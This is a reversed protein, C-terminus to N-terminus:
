LDIGKAIARRQVAFLYKVIKNVTARTLDMFAAGVLYAISGDPMKQAVCRVVRSMTSLTGLESVGYIELFARSEEPVPQRLLFPVGSGSFDKTWTAIPEGMGGEEDILRVHMKQSVRIRVFERNQFKEVQEPMKVYWVPLKGDMWGSRLFRAMFRYRCRNGLALGYVMSGAKPIVPVRQRNLPMGAIFEDKAIDEIRSLYKEDDDGVYVELRQGIAFVDGAKILEGAM